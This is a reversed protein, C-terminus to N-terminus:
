VTYDPDTGLGMISRILGVGFWMQSGAKGSSLMRVLGLCV